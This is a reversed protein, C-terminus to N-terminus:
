IEMIKLIKNESIRKARPTIMSGRPTIM